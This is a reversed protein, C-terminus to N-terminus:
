DGSPDRQMGRTARVTELSAGGGTSVGTCAFSVGHWVHFWIAVWRVLATLAQKLVFSAVNLVVWDSAARVVRQWCIPKGVSWAQAAALAIWTAWAIVVYQAVMGGSGAPVGVFLATVAAPMFHGDADAVDPCVAESSQSARIQCETQGDRYAAVVTDHGSFLLSGERVVTRSEIGYGKPIRLTSGPRSGLSVESSEPVVEEALILSKAHDVVGIALSAITKDNTRSM